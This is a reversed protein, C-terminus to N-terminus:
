LYPILYKSTYDYTAASGVITITISNSGIDVLPFSGNYDQPIGNVTVELTESDFRVYDGNQINYVLEIEENRLNNKFRIATVASVSTFNLIVIPKARITGINDIQENLTLATQNFLTVYNYDISHGFPEVCTFELEYPVFTVHYHERGSFMNYGSTLTAIYRRIEGDPPPRKIDLVAERVALARKMKDIELELLEPTEKRLIGKISIIKERWFDGIIFKGDGKPVDNVLLDRTPTNDEVLKSSMADINQLSYGNFVIPDQAELSYLNNPVNYM